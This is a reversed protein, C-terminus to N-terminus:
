NQPILILHKLPINSRKRFRRKKLPLRKECHKKSDLGTEYCIVIKPMPSPMRKPLSRQQVILPMKGTKRSSSCCYQTSKTKGKAVSSTTPHSNSVPDMKLVMKLMPTKDNPLAVVVFGHVAALQFEEADFDMANTTASAPM